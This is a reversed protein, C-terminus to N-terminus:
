LSQPSLVDLMYEMDCYTTGYYHWIANRDVIMYRRFKSEAQTFDQSSLLNSINSASVRGFDVPVTGLFLRSLATCYGVPGFSKVPFAYDIAYDNDNNGPEERTSFYRVGDFTLSRRVWVMLMQPILYEQKKSDAMDAPPTRFSVAALLPWIALWSALYRVRAVPDSGIPSNIESTGALEPVPPNEIFDLARSLAWPPYCFDLLLPPRAFEFRSAYVTDLRDRACESVAPLRCETWCTYINNALYLCPTGDVSYRVAPALHRLEFPLHFLDLPQSLRTGKSERIRYLSQGRLVTEENQHAVTLLDARVAELGHTIRDVASDMGERDVTNVAAIISECLISIPVRKLCIEEGVADDLNIIASQFQDYLVCLFEALGSAALQKPLCILDKELFQLTASAM